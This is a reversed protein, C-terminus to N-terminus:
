KMLEWAWMFSFVVLILLGVIVTIRDERRRGYKM